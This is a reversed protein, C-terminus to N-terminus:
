NGARHISDKEPDEDPDTDGLDNGEVRSKLHDQPVSQAHAHHSIHRIACITEVKCAPEKKLYPNCGGGPLQYPVPSTREQPAQERQQHDVLDSGVSTAEPYPSNKGMGSMTPVEISNATAVKAPPM